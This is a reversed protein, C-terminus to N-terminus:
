DSIKRWKNPHLVVATVALLCNIYSLILGRCLV